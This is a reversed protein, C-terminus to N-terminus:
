ANLPKRVLFFFMPTFIHQEGGAVLCNGAKQLLKSVKRTGPPALGITELILVFIDTIFSGIPTMRWRYLSEFDLSYTGKLPTYWPDQSSALHSKPDALDSYEVIEFGVNRLAQLCEPISVLKAIADGEEIGHIIKKQALNKEDYAETTLWEYCAFHGGPKLVRFIEGYPHELNRAHCCAEISYAADFTNAAFPMKEFDGDLCQQGPKLGLKLALFDEHRSICEKFTSDRYMQAFHFSTGWGYEYFDTALDYYHNTIVDSKARREAVSKETNELGEKSHDADWFKSYSDVVKKHAVTDETKKRLRLVFDSLEPDQVPNTNINTSKTM